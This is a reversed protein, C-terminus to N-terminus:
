GGGNKGQEIYLTEMIYPGSFLGMAKRITDAQGATFGALDKVIRIVQEQYVLTGYTSKLIPEQEPTDYHVNKEDLMGSIYNPIEDMPGPRYLSVGAILREFLQDGFEDFEDQSTFHEMKSAVDQYLQMIVSTMGDSELQFVGSTNGAALNRYVNVDNVPIDYIGLDLNYIRNIDQVCQKIVSETRLGLFDYKLLGIEEVETMTFQTTQETKGTEENKTLTMPCFNTLDDSSIVLGCAHVSTNKILGEVKMALDVIKRADENTDYLNQFDSSLKMAKAITMGPESPIMDSIMRSFSPEYGLVRAMDIVSGKAAMTGFTIIKSVKEKGYKQKCYDIVNERLEFEFYLSLYSNSTMEKKEGM